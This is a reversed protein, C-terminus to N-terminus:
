EVEIQADDTIPAYSPLNAGVWAGSPGVMVPVLDGITAAGMNLM